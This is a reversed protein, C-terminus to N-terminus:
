NGCSFSLISIRWIRFSCLRKFKVMCGDEEMIPFCVFCPLASKTRVRDAFDFAPNNFAPVALIDFKFPSSECSDALRLVSYAGSDSKLARKVNSCTREEKARTAARGLFLFQGRCSPLLAVGIEPIRNQARSTMLSLLNRRFLIHWPFPLLHQRPFARISFRSLM